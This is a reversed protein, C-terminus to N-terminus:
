PHDKNLPVSYLEIIRSIADRGTELSGDIYIVVNNSGLIFTAPEHAHKKWKIKVGDFIQDELGIRESYLNCAEYASQPTRYKLIIIQMLPHAIGIKEGNKLTYEGYSRLYGKIFGNELEHLEAFFKVIDCTYASSDEVEYVCEGYYEGGFVPLVAEPELESPIVLQRTAELPIEEKKTCESFVSTLLIAITISVISIILFRRSFTMCHPVPTKSKM